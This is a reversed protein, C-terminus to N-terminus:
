DANKNMASMIKDIGDYIKTKPKWYNLIYTDAENKKDKQVSDKNISPKVIADYKIAIYEAIEIIKTEVFSTVHLEDNVNTEHFRNMLTELCEVCDEAYLFQRSETGDTLMEVVKTNKAKLIFDTIM